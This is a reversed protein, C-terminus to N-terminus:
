KLVEGGHVQGAAVPSSCIAFGRSHRWCVKTRSTQVSAPCNQARHSEAFPVTIWSGFSVGATYSRHPGLKMTLLFNCLSSGSVLCIPPLSLFSGIVLDWKPSASQGALPLPTKAQWCWFGVRCHAGRGMRIGKTGWHGMQLSPFIVTGIDCLPKSPNFSNICM